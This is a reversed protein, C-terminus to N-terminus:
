LLRRERRALESVGASLGVWAQHQLFPGWNPPRRALMVSTNKSRFVSADKCHRQCGGHSHGLPDRSLCDIMAGSRLADSGQSDSVPLAKHGQLARAVPALSATDQTASPASARDPLPSHARSREKLDSPDMM